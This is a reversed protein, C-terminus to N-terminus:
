LKDKSACLERGEYYTGLKSSGIEWTSPWGKIQFLTCSQGHIGFM